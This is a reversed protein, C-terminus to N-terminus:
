AKTTVTVKAKTGVRQRKIIEWVEKGCRNIIELQQLQLDTGNLQQLTLSLIPGFDLIKPLGKTIVIGYCNFQEVYDKIKEKICKLTDVVSLSKDGVKKDKSPAKALAQLKNSESVLAIINAYLEYPQSMAKPGVTLPQEAKCEVNELEKHGSEYHTSGKLEPVEAAKEIPHAYPCPGYGASCKGYTMWHFCNEQTGNPPVRFGVVRPDLARTPSIQLGAFGPELNSQAPSEHFNPAPYVPHGQFPSHHPIASDTGPYGHTHINASSTVQQGHVPSTYPDGVEAGPFGQTRFNAPAFMAQSQFPPAYPNGYGAGQAGHVQSSHIFKYGTAAQGHSPSAHPNGIGSAAQGHSTSAHLNGFGSAQDGHVPTTHVSPHSEGLQNQSNLTHPMGFGTSQSEHVPSSYMSPYVAAAQGNSPSVYPSRFRTAQAARVPTTHFDQYGPAAPGHFPSAHPNSVGTGPNGRVSANHFEISGSGAQSQLAPVYRNPVGIGHQDRVPSVRVDACPTGAHIQASHPRVNLLQSQGHAPSNRAHISSPVSQNQLTSTLSDAFESGQHGDSLPYHLTADSATAPAESLVADNHGDVILPKGLFDPTRVGATIVKAQGPLPTRFLQRNVFEPLGHTPSGQVKTATPGGQGEFPSHAIEPDTQPVERRLPSTYYQPIQSYLPRNRTHVSERLIAAPRLQPPTHVTTARQSRTRTDQLQSSVSGAQDEHSKKQQSESSTEEAVAAGQTDAQSNHVQLHTRGSMSAVSEQQRHVETIRAQSPTHAQVEAASHMARPETPVSHPSFSFRSPPTQHPVHRPAGSTMNGLVHKPEGRAALLTQGQLRPKQRAIEQQYRCFTEPSFNPPPKQLAFFPSGEAFLPLLATPAVQPVPSAAAPLSAIALHPGTATEVVEPKASRGVFGPFSSNESTPFSTTNNDPDTNVNLGLRLSVYDEESLLYRELAISHPKQVFSIDAGSDPKVEEAVNTFRGVPPQPIPEPSLRPSKVAPSGRSLSWEEAQEKAQNRMIKAIRHALFGTENGSSM